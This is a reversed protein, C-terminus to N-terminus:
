DCVGRFSRPLSQRQDDQPLELQRSKHRHAVIEERHKKLGRRGAGPYQEGKQEDDNRTSGPGLGEIELVVM